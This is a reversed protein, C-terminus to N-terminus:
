LALQNREWTWGVESGRERWQCLEQKGGFHQLFCLDAKLVTLNMLLKQLLWPRVDLSNKFLIAHHTSCVEQCSLSDTSYTVHTAEGRRCCRDGRRQERHARGWDRVEEEQGLGAHHIQASACFGEFPAPGNRRNEKYSKSPKNFSLM